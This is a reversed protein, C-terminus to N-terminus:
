LSLGFATDVVLSTKPALPIRQNQRTLVRREV